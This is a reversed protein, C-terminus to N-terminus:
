ATSWVGERYRYERGHLYASRPYWRMDDHSFVFRIEEADPISRFLVTDLIYEIGEIAKNFVKSNGHVISFVITPSGLFGLRFALTGKGRRWKINKIIEKLVEWREFGISKVFNKDYRVPLDIGIASILMQGDDEQMSFTDDDDMGWYERVQQQQQGYDRIVEEVVDFQENLLNFLAEVEAQSLGMHVLRAHM